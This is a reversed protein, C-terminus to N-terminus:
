RTWRGGRWVSRGGGRRLSVLAPAREHWYRTRALDSQGYRDSSLAEVPMQRREIATSPGGDGEEAAGPRNLRRGMRARQALATRDRLPDDKCGAGKASTARRNGECATEKESTEGEWRGCGQAGARGCARMCAAWWVGSVLSGSEPARGISDHILSGPGPALNLTLLGKAWGSAKAESREPATKSARLELANKAVSAKVCSLARQGATILGSESRLRWSPWKTSFMFRLGASEAGWGQLEGHQFPSACQKPCV